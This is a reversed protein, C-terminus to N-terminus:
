TGRYGNAAIDIAVQRGIGRSAGVVLAVPKSSMQLTQQHNLLAKETNILSHIIKFSKSLIRIITFLASTFGCPYIM